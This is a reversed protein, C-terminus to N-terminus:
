ESDVHKVAIASVERLMEVAPQLFAGLEDASAQGTDLVADVVALFDACAELATVDAAHDLRGFPEAVVYISKGNASDEGVYRLQGM